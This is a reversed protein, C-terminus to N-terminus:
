WYHDLRTRYLSPDEHLSVVLAFCHSAGSGNSDMGGILYVMDGVAVAKFDSMATPLPKKTTWSGAGAYLSTTHAYGPLTSAKGV